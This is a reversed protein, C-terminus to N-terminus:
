RKKWGFILFAGGIFIIVLAVQLLANWWMTLGAWDLIHWALRFGVRV